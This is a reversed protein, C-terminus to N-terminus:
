EHGYKKAAYPPNSTSSDGVSDEIASPKKKEELKSKWTDM